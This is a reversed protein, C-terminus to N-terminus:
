TGWGLLAVGEWWQPHGKDSGPIEFLM